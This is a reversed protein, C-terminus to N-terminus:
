FMAIFQLTMGLTLLVADEAEGDVYRILDGDTIASPDICTETMCERKAIAGGREDIGEKRLSDVLHYGVALSWVGPVILGAASIARDPKPGLRLIRSGM